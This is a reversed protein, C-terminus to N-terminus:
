IQHTGECREKTSSLNSDQQNPICEADEKLKKVHLKWYICEVHARIYSKGLQALSNKYTKPLLALGTEVIGIAIKTPPIDETDQIDEKDKFHMRKPQCTRIPTEM